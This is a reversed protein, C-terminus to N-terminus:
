TCPAIDTAGGPACGNRFTNLSGTLLTNKAPSAVCSVNHPVTSPAQSLPSRAASAASRRMPAKRSSGTFCAGATLRRCGPPGGRAPRGPVDTLQHCLRLRQDGPGAALVARVRQILHAAGALEIHDARQGGHGFGELAYGNVAHALFDQARLALGRAQRLPS